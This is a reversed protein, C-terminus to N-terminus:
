CRDLRPSVFCPHVARTAPTEGREGHHGEREHRETRRFAARERAVVPQDRVRAADQARVDALRVGVARALRREQGAGRVRRPGCVVRPDGIDVRQVPDGDRIGVPRPRLRKSGPGGGRLRRERGVPLTDRIDLRVVEVRNEGVGTPELLM